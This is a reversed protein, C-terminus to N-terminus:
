TKCDLVTGHGYLQQTLTRSAAPYARTPEILCEGKPYSTGSAELTM